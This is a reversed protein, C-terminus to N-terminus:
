FIFVYLKFIILNCDFQIVIETIVDHYLERM